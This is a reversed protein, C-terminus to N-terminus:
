AHAEEQDEQKRTVDARVVSQRHTEGDRSAPSAHRGGAKPDWIHIHVVIATIPNLWPTPPCWSGRGLQSATKYSPHSFSLSPHSHHHHHHHHRGGSGPVALDAFSVLWNLWAEANCAMAMAMAKAFDFDDITDTTCGTLRRSKLHVGFHRQPLTTGSVVLAPASTLRAATDKQSQKTADPFLGLGAFLHPILAVM